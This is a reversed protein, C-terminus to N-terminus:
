FRGNEVLKLTRGVMTNLFSYALMIHYFYFFKYYEVGSFKTNFDFISIEPFNHTFGGFYRKNLKFIWSFRFNVSFTIRASGKQDNQAMMSTFQIYFSSLTQIWIALIEWFQQDSYIRFFRSFYTKPELVATKSRLVEFNPLQTYFIPLLVCTKSIKFFRSFHGNEFNQSTKPM